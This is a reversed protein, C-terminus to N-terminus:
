KKFAENIKRTLLSIIKKDLKKSRGIFERKPIKIEHAGIGVKQQYKAKGPRVFRGKKGFSLVHSGAGKQITGGENHISAYPIGKTAIVIRDFKYEMLRISNRLHGTKVLIARNKNPNRRDSKDKSTRPKWGGESADTQGGGTRFGSVFHNQALKGVLLPMDNNKLAEFAKLVQPLNWKGIREVSM